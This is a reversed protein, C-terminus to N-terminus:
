APLLGRGKREEQKLTPINPPLFDPQRKLLFTLSITTPVDQGAELKRLSRSPPM